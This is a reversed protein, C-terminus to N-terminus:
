RIVEVKPKKLVPFLKGHLAVAQEKSTARLTLVRLSRQPGDWPGRWSIRYQKDKM